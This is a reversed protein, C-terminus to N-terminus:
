KRWPISFYFATGVGEKSEFWMRGGLNEVIGKSIVLGLGLGERRRSISTNDQCFKNFLNKQVEQPIGHGNDKVYFIIERDASRFGIEIKGNGSPVFDIANRILNDFVQRLRKRDTEVTIKEKSSNILKIKVGDKKLKISHSFDNILDIIFLEARFEEESFKMKYVSLKQFDLLDEILRGLREANEYISNVAVLQDKNLHGLVNYDKLMEIHIRIPTLPSRLEHSITAIFDDKLLSLKKMEELQEKIIANKTEVEKRAHYIEEIDKIITNSGIVNGSEDRITTANLLTPFVTGDKRKFWIERDYVQGTRKWTEFSDHIAGVDKESVHDFISKGIIEDKSYGLKQAYSKNYELIIGDMDIIRYMDPSEEFLGRYKQETVFLLNLTKRLKEEVNKQETIDTRIAIYKSIKGKEDFFPMITSKVWYHTGDKAKNKIEGRWIKGQSITQWMGQFFEPTHYGSKLIRHNQGLLEEVSYKSIKCFLKNVYLITGNKDTIAVISSEDLAYVIQTLENHKLDFSPSDKSQIAEM